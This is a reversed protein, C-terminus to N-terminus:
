IRVRLFDGQHYKSLKQSNSAQLSKFKCLFTNVKQLFNAFRQKKRLADNRDAEGIEDPTKQVFPGVARFGPFSGTKRPNEM